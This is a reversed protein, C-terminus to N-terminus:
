GPLLLSVFLAVCFFAWSGVGLWQIGTLSKVPDATPIRVRRLPRSASAATPHQRRQSRCHGDLLQDQSPPDAELAAAFRAFRPGRSAWGADAEGVGEDHPQAVRTPRNTPRWSPRPPIPADPQPGHMADRAGPLKQSSSRQCSWFSPRKRDDPGSRHRGADARYCCGVRYNNGLGPYEAEVIAFSVQWRLIARCFAL